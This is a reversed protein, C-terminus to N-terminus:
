PKDEQETNTTTETGSEEMLQSLEADVLNIFRHYDAAKIDGIPLSNEGKTLMDVPAMLEGELVEMEALFELFSLEPIESTKDKDALSPAALLMMMM